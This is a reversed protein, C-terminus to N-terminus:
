AARQRPRMRVLLPQDHARRWFLYAAAFAFGVHVFALVGMAGVGENPIRACAMTVLNTYTFYVLLASFMSVYRSSHPQVRGFGLAFVMLVPLVLVKSIRWAIEKQEHPGWSRWLRITKWGHLPYRVPAALTSKDRLTYREFNIVRYVSDGPTGEYRVGNELVLFVQGKDPDTHRHASQALVVGERGAHSGWAFVGEYRGNDKNLKEVFYVARGAQAEMFIGPSVGVIDTRSKLEHEIAGVSRVAMPGVVLSFSGVIIAGVLILFVVPRLLHSLGLGSAAMVTLENERSWRSLVLLMAVFMMLPLIVDMYAIVKLFLLIFISDVPIVGEAAQRLFGLVRVVIFICFIVATVAFSTLLVERALARRLIM